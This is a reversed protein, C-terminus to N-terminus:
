RELAPTREHGSRPEDGDDAPDDQEDHRDVDQHREV